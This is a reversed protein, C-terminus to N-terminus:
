DTPLTVLASAETARDPELDLEAIELVRRAVEDFTPLRADGNGARRAEVSDSAALPMIWASTSGADPELEERVTALAGRSNVIVGRARRLLDRDALALDHLWVVGPYTRALRYTEDATAGVTYIVADYAAPTFTPGLSAAPFMRFPGSPRSRDCRADFPETFCDLDCRPALQTALRANYGASWSHSPPFPGVLAVRVRRPQIPTSEPLGSCAALLREVVRVWTHRAAARACRQELEARYASDSLAREMLASIEDPDTPSFAAGSWDLVEPLSSTNSTIAPCGCSIAELVPLGFGEYRSPLVFLSAHRYLARLVEDEVFGTLVIEDPGIGRQEAHAMWARRTADPLTCVVVLQLEARRSAPLRAWADFLGDTNKHGDPGSVSLVYPRTLAPLEYRLRPRHDEGAEPLSFFSSAAEGIVVVHEPDIDWREALDQRTNESPTVILEARRIWERRRVYARGWASEPDYGVVDPILDHVMVVEPVGTVHAALTAHVPRAGEFPSIVFNILPGNRLARRFAKATNWVLQPARALDPHIRRPWPVMPNLALAAVTGDRALLARSLETALRPIGRDGFRLSQITQIDVYLRARPM